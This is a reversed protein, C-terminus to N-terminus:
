DKVRAWCSDAATPVYLYICRIGFFLAGFASFLGLRRLGRWAVASGAGRGVAGLGWGRGVREMPVQVVGWIM